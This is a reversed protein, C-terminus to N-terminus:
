RRKGSDDAHNLLWLFLGICILFFVATWIGRRGYARYYLLLVCTSLILWQAFSRM